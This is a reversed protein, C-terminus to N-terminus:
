PSCIEYTFSEVCYPYQQALKEPIMELIETDSLNGPLTLKVEDPLNIGCGEDDEFIINSVLINTNTEANKM